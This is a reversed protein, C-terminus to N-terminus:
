GKIFMGIPRKLPLHQTDSLSKLFFSSELSEKSDSAFTPVATISNILSTVGERKKLRKRELKTLSKKKIM